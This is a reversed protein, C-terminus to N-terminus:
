EHTKNEEAQGNARRRLVLVLTIGIGLGAILGQTLQVFSISSATSTHQAAALDTELRSVRQLLEDREEALRRDVDVLIVSQGTAAVEEHCTTCPVTSVKMTHDPLNHFQDTAETYMHCSACTVDVSEYKVENHTIHIYTEAYPDPHEPTGRHCNLCLNDITEFRITQGHPNHCTACGIAGMDKSFAHLSREWENFTAVHCDGCISTDTKVIFKKPPHDPPNLGHCAECQINEALYSGTAPQFDTTHCKLCDPDRNEQKWAEQFSQRDYAIAHVGSAWAAHYDLHCEGCNKGANDTVPNDQFLPAALGPTAVLGLGALMSLLLTLYYIM